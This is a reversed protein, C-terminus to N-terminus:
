PAHGDHCGQLNKNLRAISWKGSLDDFMMLIAAIRYCGGVMIQCPTRLSADKTQTPPGIRVKLRYRVNQVRLYLIIGTFIRRFPM